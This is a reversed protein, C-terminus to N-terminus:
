GINARPGRFALGELNLNVAPILSYVNTGRRRLEAALADTRKAWMAFLDQQTSEGEPYYGDPNVKGDWIGHDAAVTVISAAGLFWALYLAPHLTTYGWLLRSDDDPWGHTPFPELDRNRPPLKLTVTRPHREVEPEPQGYESTEHPAFVWGDWGGDRLEQEMQWYQSVTYADTLGFRATVLNLAVCVKGDFFAPDLHDWAASAGVVWVTEGRHRNRWESLM